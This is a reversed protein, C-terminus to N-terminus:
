LSSLQTIVDLLSAGATELDDIMVIVPAKASLAAIWPAAFKKIDDDPVREDGTALANITERVQPIHEPRIDPFAEAIIGLEEDSVTQLVECLVHCLERLPTTFAGRAHLVMVIADSGIRRAVELLFRSKGIGPEGEVIVLRMGERISDRLRARVLEHEASRGIFPLFEGTWAPLTTMFGAGRALLTVDHNLVRRELERM